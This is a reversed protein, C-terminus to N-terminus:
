HGHDGRKFEIKVSEREDITNTQIMVLSDRTKILRANSIHIIKLEEPLYITIYQTKKGPYPMIELIKGDFEYTLGSSLRSRWWTCIERANTVWADEKQCFEIIRTYCDGWGPFEHENFVAHHWLLTLLGHSSQILRFLQLFNNWRNPDQFFATDQITIPIELVRLPRNGKPYFPFFPLSTGWRFGLSNNFGLTSDYELGAYEHHLWTDPILLNLNHQRVGHIRHNLVQELEEKEKRILLTDNYSDFSGHLSIEDGRTYLQHILEEVAPDEWRYRRGPHKWTKRKLIRVKATEHLFFYTSRAGLSEELKILDNFTWYPERGSLKGIFSYVQPLLQRFNGKVMLKLPYTVWQYTKKVEDVDHTLCVAFQKGEPWPSRTVLPIGMKKCGYLISEFLLDEYLDAIPVMGPSHSEPGVPPNWLHEMHGSLLYGVEKFVDFGISIQHDDCTICPYTAEGSQYYSIPVGKEGANAPIEFIPIKYDDKTIIGTITDRIENEKISICFDGCPENGYVVAVLCNEPQNATHIGFKTLFHSIGYLSYPNDTRYLFSIM